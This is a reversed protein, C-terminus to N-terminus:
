KIEIAISTKWWFGEQNNILINKITKKSKYITKLDDNEIELSIISNCLQDIEKDDWVGIGFYLNEIEKPKLNIVISDGMISESLRYNKFNPNLKLKVKAASNSNNTFVIVHAPDCSAIFFLLFSLLFLKTITKM